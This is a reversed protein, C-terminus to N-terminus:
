QGGRLRAKRLREHVSARFKGKKVYSAASGLTAQRHISPSPTLTVEGTGQAIGLLLRGRKSGGAM